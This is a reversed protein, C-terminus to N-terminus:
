EEFEDKRLGWSAALPMLTGFGLQNCCAARFRGQHLSFQGNGAAQPKDPCFVRIELAGWLRPVDRGGPHNGAFHGGDSGCGCGARAVGRLRLAWDSASTLM